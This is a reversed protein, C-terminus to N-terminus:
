LGVGISTSTQCYHLGTPANLAGHPVVRIADYETPRGV